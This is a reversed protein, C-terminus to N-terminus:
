VMKGGLKQLGKGLSAFLIYFDSVGIFLYIFLCIFLYLEGM